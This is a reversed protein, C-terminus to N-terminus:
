WRKLIILIDLICSIFVSASHRIVTDCRSAWIIPLLGSRLKLNKWCSLKTHLRAAWIYVGVRIGYKKCLAALQRSTEMHEKEAELGYAKYYHIVCMTVGMEKLKQVAEDTIGKMYEEEQWVPNGGVRRRFIPMDDWSGTIIIPEQKLWDPRPLPENTVVGEQVQSKNEEKKTTCNTSLLLLLTSIVAILSRFKISVKKM